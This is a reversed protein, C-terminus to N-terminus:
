DRNYIYVPDNFKNPNIIWNIIILERVTTNYEIATNDLNGILKYSTLNIDILQKSFEKEIGIYNKIMYYCENKIKMMNQYEEFEDVLIKGENINILHKKLNVLNM